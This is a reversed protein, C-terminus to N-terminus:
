KEQLKGAMLLLWLLEAIGDEIKVQPEWGILKKALSNGAL